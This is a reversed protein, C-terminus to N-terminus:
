VLATKFLRFLLLAVCHRERLGDFFHREAGSARASPNAAALGASRQAQNLFPKHENQDAATGGISIIGIIVLTKQQERATLTHELTRLILQRQVIGLYVERVVGGCFVKVENM